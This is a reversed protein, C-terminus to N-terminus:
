ELRGSVSMRFTATDTDADRDARLTVTTGPDAYIYAPGSVWYYDNAGFQELANTGLYHRVQTGGATTIIGFLAKQGTPMYAEGSVYEILNCKDKPVDFFGNEGAFNPPVVIEIHTQFAQKCTMIWEKEPNRDYSPLRTSVSTVEVQAPNV